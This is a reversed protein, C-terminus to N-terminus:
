LQLTRNAALFTITDEVHGQTHRNGSGGHDTTLIILWEEDLRQSILGTLEGVMKDIEAVAEMYKENKVSFKNSHGVSDPRSYVGVILSNGDISEKIKEQMLTDNDAQIYSANKANEKAWTIEAAMQVSLLSEWSSIIVSKYGQLAINTVVTLPEVGKADTNKNVPTDFENSWKGTFMSMLSPAGDTRIKGNGGGAYTLHAGGSNILSIISSENRDLATLADARMGKAILVLAKKKTQTNQNFHANVVESVVTQPLAQSSLNSFLGSKDLKTGYKKDTDCGSMALTIVALCIVGSIISLYKRM